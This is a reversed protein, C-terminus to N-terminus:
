LLSGRLLWAPSTLSTFIVFDNCYFAMCHGEHLCEHPHKPASVAHLVSIGPGDSMRSKARAKAKAIMEAADRSAEDKINTQDGSAACFV